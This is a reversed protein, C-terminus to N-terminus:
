NGVSLEADPNMGSFKVIEAGLKGLEDLPFSDFETDTLDSAGEVALRVMLRLVSVEDGETQEKSAKQIKLIESVSLKNVKVKEGMFDIQTSVKKGVLHKM